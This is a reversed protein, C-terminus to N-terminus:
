SRFNFNVFTYKKGRKVTISKPNAILDSSAAIEKLADGSIDEIDESYLILSEGKSERGSGNRTGRM